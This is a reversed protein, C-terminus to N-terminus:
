LSLHSLPDFDNWDVTSPNPFHPPPMSVISCGLRWHSFDKCAAVLIEVPSIARVQQQAQHSVSVRTLTTIHYWPLGVKTGLGLGEREHGTCSFTNPARTKMLAAARTVSGCGVKWVKRCCVTIHNIKNDTNCTTKRILTSMKGDRLSCNIRERDTIINEFFVLFFCLSVFLFCRSARSPHSLLKCCLLHDQRIHPCLRDVVFPTPKGLLFM